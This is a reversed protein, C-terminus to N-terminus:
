SQLINITMKLSTVNLSPAHINKQMSPHLITSLWPQQLHPPPSTCAHNGSIEPMRYHLSCYQLNITINLHKKNNTQTRTRMCAHTHTDTHTHTRAHTHTHTHTNLKLLLTIWFLLIKFSLNWLPTNKHQHQKRVPQLVPGYPSLFPQIWFTPCQNVDEEQKFFVAIETNPVSPSGHFLCANINIILSVSFYSLYQHHHPVTSLHHACWKYSYAEPKNVHEYM